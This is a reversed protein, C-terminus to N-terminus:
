IYIIISNWDWIELTRRPKVQEENERSERVPNSALVALGTM